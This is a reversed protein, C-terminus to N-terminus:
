SAAGGPICYLSPRRASLAGPPRLAAPIDQPRGEAEFAAVIVPAIADVRQALEAVLAAMQTCSCEPHPVTM